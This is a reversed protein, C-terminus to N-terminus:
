LWLSETEEPTVFYSAEDLGQISLLRSAIEPSADEAPAATTQAEGLDLLRSFDNAHLVAQQEIHLHLAGGLLLALAAAVAFTRFLPVFRRARRRATLHALAESRIAALVRESPGEFANLTRRVASTLETEDEERTDRLDPAASTTNAKM